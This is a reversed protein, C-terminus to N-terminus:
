RMSIGIEPYQFSVNIPLLDIHLTGGLGILSAFSCPLVCSTVGKTRQVKRRHTHLMVLMVLLM